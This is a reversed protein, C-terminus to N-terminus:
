FKCIYYKIYYKCIGILGAGISFYLTSGSILLQIIYYLMPVNVAIAWLSANILGYIRRPLRVPEIKPVGSLKFFNGTEFFSDAM